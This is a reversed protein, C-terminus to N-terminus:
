SRFIKTKKLDNYMEKRYTAVRTHINSKAKRSREGRSICSNSFIELENKLAKKRSNEIIKIKKFLFSESHVYNLSM